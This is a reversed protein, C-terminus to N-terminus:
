EHAVRWAAVLTFRVPKDPDQQQVQHSRLYVSSFIDQASLHKLYNLVAAMNKAEGSIKVENKEANPEMGLLAVDKGSSWEVARFLRDWPLTIKNLVENAHKIELVMEGSARVTVAHNGLARGDTGASAEWYAISGQLNRYYAGAAVAVAVAIAFLVAGAWPFPKTAAQYDLRLETM